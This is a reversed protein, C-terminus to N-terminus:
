LWEAGVDCSNFYTYVAYRVADMFHDNHKVPEDLRRGDKGTKWSYSKAEKQGNVSDNTIFFKRTKISDIGMLVAKNAPEIIFGADEIEKIRDPEASDAYIIKDQMHHAKLWEILDSNTMFSKYLRERAYIDNDKIRVEALCTQNNFGFDLGFIREADKPLDQCLQWHSYIKSASVGRLGLGYIKWYNEDTGKLREIENIITEELFPNDKYTSKILECDTRTLVHDYIWSFEDSPNYDIYVDGSTRFLLQRWDEYTLENAENSWLIKRKRGRVKEPEDLSFFEIETNNLKYIHDSKNHNNENYWGWSKIITFFDRMATAKLAPFTKRCIAYVEPKPEAAALLAILQAISYTKSSRTGGENAKIRKQSQLNKEFVITSQINKPQTLTQM